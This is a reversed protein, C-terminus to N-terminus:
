FYHGYRGAYQTDTMEQWLLNELNTLQLSLRKYMNWRNVRGDAKMTAELNAIRNFEKRLMGAEQATLRGSYEARNIRNLLQAQKADFEASGAIPARQDMALRDIRNALRDLDALIRQREVQNLVHGSEKFYAETDAIFELEARLQAAESATLAATGALQTIRNALRTQKEDIDRSAVDDDRVEMNLRALLSSLGRNLVTAESRSMFRGSARYQAELNSLRDFEARIEAAEEHTLRSSRLGRAIGREIESQRADINPHDVNDDHQALDDDTMQLGIHSNVHDLEALLTRVEASTLAGDAKFNVEMNTVANLENRLAVAESRTLRGSAQGDAIKRELQAQRGDVEASTPTSVSGSLGIESDLRASLANLERMLSSSETFSLRGDTMFQAEHNAIHGLEERLGNAESPTLQGSRLGLRIRTEIEAQRADVNGGGTTVGTLNEILNMVGSGQAQAPQGLAFCSATVIAAVTGVLRGGIIM